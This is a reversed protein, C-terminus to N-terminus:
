AKKNRCQQCNYAIRKVANRCGTIWYLNRLNSIITENGIHCNIEHFHKIILETIPHKPNLLIPHKSDYTMGDHVNNLRGKLRLLNDNNM